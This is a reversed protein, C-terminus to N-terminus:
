FLMIIFLLHELLNFYCNTIYYTSVVIVAYTIYCTSMVIVVCTIYCTSMVIFVCMMAHQYLWIIFLVDCYKSIAVCSISCKLMVIVVCTVAHQFLLM